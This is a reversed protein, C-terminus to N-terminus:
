KSSVQEVVWVPPPPQMDNDCQFSGDNGLSLLNNTNVQAQCVWRDSRGIPEQPVFGPFGGFPAVEAEFAGQLLPAGFAGRAVQAAEPMGLGAKPPITVVDQGFLQGLADLRAARQREFVEGIDTLPRCGSALRGRLAPQMAPRKGLEAGKKRVLCLLAATRHDCHVRSMGRLRTTAAPMLGAVVPAGPTVKHTTGTAKRQM